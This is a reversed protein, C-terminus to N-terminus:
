ILANCGYHPRKIDVFISYCRVCRLGTREVFYFCIRMMNSSIAFIPSRTANEKRKWINRDSFMAVNICGFRSELLLNSFFIASLFPLYWANLDFIIITSSTDTISILTTVIQTFHMRLSHWLWSAYGEWYLFSLFPSSILVFTVYSVVTECIVFVSRNLYVSFKVVLSPFNESLFFRINEYKQEYCLNYISTLVAVGLCNWRTGM